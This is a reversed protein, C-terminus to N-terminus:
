YICRDQEQVARSSKKLKDWVDKTTTCAMIITFMVDSVSAHLASLAKYKKAIEESHQKMQAITPNTRLSFPDKNTEVVEWLDFAQLYANM